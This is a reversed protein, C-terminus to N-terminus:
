STDVLDAISRLPDDGFKTKWIRPSLELVDKDPHTSVRQLVDVLYTYPDMGQLRCTVLLSQLVAIHRAGLESWCFLWNRRGMPIPRISRELHNTDLPVEPDSLFVKLGARRAQAYKLATMLPHKPTLEPRLLQADCWRFFAHVIPESHTTRYDRKAEATLQRERIVQEHAYLAGILTLAEGSATADAAEAQEFYRRAHAWCLAHTVSSHKASYATYASYGDSLLTGTFGKLFTEVHAHARSSAYHFVVEDHEGYIPWLYAQKMKGPSVRGAKIPIEDMALHTNTQVLHRGMAAVIPTLLDLARGSWNIPTQRSLIVGGDLMRQHQRYLPLHYLGKDILLGALVSVDAACGPFVAPPNEACVIEGSPQVKYVPRIIKLLIYSSPRQSLRWTVKEGIREKQDDPLADVAPDDMQIEAILAGETFRLGAPLVTDESRVKPRRSYTITQVDASPPLAVEPVGLNVFLSTQVTEDVDLRKESKEGFLQRQFWAVQGKLQECVAHLADVEHRLVGNARELEAIRADETM